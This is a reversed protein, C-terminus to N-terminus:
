LEERCYPCYIFKVEPVPVPDEDESTVANIEGYGNIEIFSMHIILDDWKECSHYERM